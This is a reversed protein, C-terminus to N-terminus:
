VTYTTGSVVTNDCGVWSKVQKSNPIPMMVTPKWLLLLKRTSRHWQLFQQPSPICRRHIYSLLPQQHFCLFLLLFQWIAPFKQSVSNKQSKRSGIGARLIREQSFNKRWFNRASLVNLFGYMNDNLQPDLLEVSFQGMQRLFMITIEENNTIEHLIKGLAQLTYHSSYM